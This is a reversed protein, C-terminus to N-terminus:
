EFYKKPSDTLMTVQCENFLTLNLMPNSTILRVNFVFTSVDIKIRWLLM